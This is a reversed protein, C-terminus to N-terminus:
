LNYLRKANDNLIMRVEEDSLDATKIYDVARIYKEDKFYPFDSGMLLKNAGFVEITNRLAAKSFNATDFYFSKLISDLPNESFADWDNYNDLIRQIQFSVGGGLHSIHFKLNPFKKPFEKKLLQVTVILDEIPAGIVWELDYDNVLCSKAGNGTPHIYIITGIENVAEFFPLFKDDTIAMENRILTNVAIGKFGLENIVRKAEYIAKGIYPLPVAGYADFRNRYKDILNKYYNNIFISAKYAEDESGWEPSQPTASLVQMTVGAMDMIKIRKILEENDGAGMGKAIDTNKSGLSKLMDLYEDPWMHAHTDIANKGM